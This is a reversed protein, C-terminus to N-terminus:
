TNVAIKAKFGCILVTMGNELDGGGILEERKPNLTYSRDVLGPHIKFLDMREPIKPM